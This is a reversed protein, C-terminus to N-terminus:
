SSTQIDKLCAAAPLRVPTAAYEFALESAPIPDPHGCGRNLTGDWDTLTFQIEAPKLPSQVHCMLDVAEVSLVSEINRYSNVGEYLFEAENEFM